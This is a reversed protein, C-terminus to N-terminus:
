GNGADGRQAMELRRAIEAPMRTPRGELTLSAARITAEFLVADDDVRHISSEFVVGTKRIESTVTRVEIEDGLRAPSHYRASIEVVAFVIGEKQYAALDIGLARCYEYRGAEAYRLYNAYYVVGGADTDAYYVHLRLRHEFPRSTNM